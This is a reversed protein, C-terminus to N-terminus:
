FNGQFTSLWTSFIASQLMSNKSDFGIECNKKYRSLLLGASRTLHDIPSVSYIIWVECTVTSNGSKQVSRLQVPFTNRWNQKMGRMKIATTIPFVRLIRM